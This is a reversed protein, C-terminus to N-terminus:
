SDSHYAYLAWGEKKWWDRCQRRLETWHREEIVGHPWDVATGTYRRLEAAASKRKGESRGGLADMAWELRHRAQNATFWHEWKDKAFGFDEFTVKKLARSCREALAGDESGLCEILMPVASSERLEGLAVAAIRKAEPSAQDNGLVGVVERLGWRYEPFQSFGRIVDIALARIQQDNDFVRAVLAGLASPYPLESFMFTAYFRQNPDASDLMPLLHSVVGKGFMLLTRLLPGHAAVRPLLGAAQFRDYHLPGPFHPLLERIADEGIGVLLEAAAEDFRKSTLVRQVLRGIEERMAIIVTPPTAGPGGGVSTSAHAPASSIPAKTPPQPAEPLPGQTTEPLVEPGRPEAPEVERFPRITQIRGIAPRSARQPVNQAPQRTRALPAVQDVLGNNTEQDANASSLHYRGAWTQANDRDRTRTPAVVVSVPERPQEEQPHAKRYAGYKRELLLREFAEAVNQNLRVMVSVRESEVGLEGRDGYILLIVRHRLTVPLIACNSLGARGLARLADNDVTSGGPPGLYFSRTDFATQFMGGQDLPVNIHELDTKQRDGWVAARGEATRGHVVFLVCFDFTSRCFSLVIDLIEDRSKASALRRRTEDFDIAPPAAHLEDVTPAPDEPPNSGVIALPGTVPIAKATPKQPRAVFRITADNDRGAPLRDSIHISPSVSVAPGKFTRSAFNDETPVSPAPPLSFIGEAQPASPPRVTPELNAVFGSDLRRALSLLRPPMTLGYHRNLGMAVRFKHAFHEELRLSRQWLVDELEDSDLRSSCAAVLRNNSELSLPLFRYKNVFEWPVSTLAEHTPADLLERRLVLMDLSRGVFEALIDENLLGLELLNTALDGGQIVQRQLAQEIQTVGVIQHQVLLSGLTAM